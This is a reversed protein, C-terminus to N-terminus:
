FSEHPLFETRLKKTLLAGTQETNGKKGSKKRNRERANFHNKGPVRSLVKGNKTVKLRKSYSKNTKQSM